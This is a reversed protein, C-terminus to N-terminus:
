LDKRIPPSEEHSHLKKEGNPLILMSLLWGLLLATAVSIAASLNLGTHFVWMCIPIGLLVVAISSATLIALRKRTTLM